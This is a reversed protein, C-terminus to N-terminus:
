EHGALQHHLPVGRELRHIKIDRMQLSDCLSDVAKQPNHRGCFFIDMALFGHEPWTHVAIHSEALTATATLGHPSFHHVCLDILTAGVAEVAKHLASRIIKEDDLLAPSINWADVIIHIGLPSRM